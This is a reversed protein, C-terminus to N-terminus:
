NMHKRYVDMLGTDLTWVATLKQFNSGERLTFDPNSFERTDLVPGFDYTWSCWPIEYEDLVSLLDDAAACATECPITGRFGFEQVMIAEGSQESFTRYSQFLEKLWERNKVLLKGLGDCSLEGNESIRLTPVSEDPLASNDAYLEVTYSGNSIRLSRIFYWWGDKQEIRLEKCDSPLTASLSVGEYLRYEGDTGEQGILTCGNEGVKETGLILASLAKGDSILSLESKAHVGKIDVSIKTGAPLAGRIKLVGKGRHVLGNIAYSPWKGTSFEMFYPHVSQVVRQDALGQVPVAATGGLMDVVILREPSVSRIAKIARKMLASYQEDSPWGEASHPENLLNFSLLKEPVDKYYEALRQWFAVFYDQQAEDDWLTIASDDGSTNFGPMDHLDICIHIGRLACYKILSNLPGLALTEAAAPDAERFISTADMPARIFNFGLEDLVRIEEEEYTNDTFSKWDRRAVTYGKWDPLGSYSLEPMAEVQKLAKESLTFGTQQSQECGCLLIALLLIFLLSVTTKKM